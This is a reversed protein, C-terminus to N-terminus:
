QNLKQVKYMYTLETLETDEETLMRHIDSIVVGLRLTEQYLNKGTCWVNGEKVAKFDALLPNKATLEELSNLEEGITSNYIIYDADKATRYFEEMELTVAASANSNQKDLLYEGGALEIMRAIYDGSARTVISGSSSIYFYAVSKGTSEKGSVSEMYDVQEKFLQEAKEEKDMLAGYLKIWETRGLPHEEYSSWDVLVPVGLEELKEKVEPSHSIMTNQISLGCNEALIQEYDPESYKGAFLIKGEEMRKKANEIYWGEAATGSLRIASLSDLADFLNMASTAALYINQIPQQLVTIRDPLSEPVPKGEPVLLFSSGDSVLVLAYGGEYYDVAFGEAYSLELSGTLTIGPLRVQKWDANSEAAATEEQADAAKSEEATKIDEAGSLPHRSMTSSDFFITYSIDHPTGMAVTQATVSIEKDLATVPIEFESNGSTNVPYYYEEGIIMYQYNPSSWRIVATMKEGEIRLLAPSEVSAKGSGGALQVEIWYEGDQGKRHVSLLLVGGIVILLLLLVILGTKRKKM